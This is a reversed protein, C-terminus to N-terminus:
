TYDWYRQVPVTHLNTHFLSTTGPRCVTM